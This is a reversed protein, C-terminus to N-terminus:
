KKRSCLERYGLIAVMTKADSITGDFIMEIAEELSYRELEIFEDPDFHQKGEKLNQATYIFLEETCFGIAAHMQTLLKVDNSYYGTEEELERVACDFPEEGEDIMGAPIELVMKKLPHRYQRVFIIKGEEDIPVIASANGRIVTERQANKGDPMKITDVEVALVKGQYVKKNELVEYSM